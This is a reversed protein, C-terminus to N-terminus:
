FHIRKETLRLYYVKCNQLHQRRSPLTSFLYILRQPCRARWAVNLGKQRSNYIVAASHMITTMILCAHRRFILTALTITARRGAEGKLLVEGSRGRGGALGWGGVELSVWHGWGRWSRPARACALYLRFCIAAAWFDGLLKGVSASHSEKWVKTVSPSHGGTWLRVQLVLWRKTDM